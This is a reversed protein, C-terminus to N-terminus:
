TDLKEIQPNKLPAQDLQTGYVRNRGTAKAKYLADDAAKRLAAKSSGRRPRATAAGISITAVGFPSDEHPVNLGQLAQRITEGIVLSDAHDTEPLLILFEEGGYRAALDRPNRIHSQLTDAIMRLLDDGKDHGYRDNYKKFSDADVYLMSLPTDAQIAQKWERDYVDHLARRNPLGTLEDTRALDALQVEALRRRKLEREFLVLLMIIALCLILTMLGQLVVGERWDALIDDISRSVSLLLPLEGVRSFSYLRDVGDIAATGEFSGSGEQRFRQVNPTQGLDLGVESENYPRRMLVIGDDRLLTISGAEGLDLNKFREALNALPISVRVVGAFTGDPRSVRRSLVIQLTGDMRSRFPRSVYLGIDPREKHVQFYDRDAFNGSRPILSEEDEIINGLENMVLVPGINGTMVQSFLIRHRLNPILRWIEENGLQRLIGKLSTDLEELDRNLSQTLLASVNQLSHQAELWDSKRDRSARITSLALITLVILGTGLILYHKRFFRM